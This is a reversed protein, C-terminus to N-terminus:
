RWKRSELSRVALFLFFATVTVFYIADYADVRGKLFELFHSQPTLYAGIQYWFGSTMGALDALMSLAMLGITSFFALFASLLANETVSSAFIGIAIYLGGLLLSGTYGAIIPGTDPKGISSGLHALIAWYALTPVLMFVYFSFTAFWKATIVQWDSVPATLLTELTNSAREEAVSNMTLLPMLFLLVFALWELVPLFSIHAVQQNMTGVFIWATMLLFLFMVLYPVPAYFYALVERKTLAVLRNM